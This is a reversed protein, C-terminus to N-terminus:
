RKNGATATNTTGNVIGADTGAACGERVANPAAETSTGVDKEGDVDV